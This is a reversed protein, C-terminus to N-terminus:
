QQFPRRLHERFVVGLCTAFNGLIRCSHKEVHKDDGGLLRNLCKKGLKRERMGMGM